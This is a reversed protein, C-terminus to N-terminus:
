PALLLLLIMKIKVNMIQLKNYQFNLVNTFNEVIFCLEICINFYFLNGDGQSQLAWCCKICSIDDELNVAALSVPIAFPQKFLILDPLSIILSCFIYTKHIFCFCVSNNALPRSSSKSHNYTQINQTNLQNRV